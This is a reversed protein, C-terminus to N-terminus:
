PINFDFKNPGKKTVEKVIESKKNYQPPIREKGPKTGAYPSDPSANGAGSRGDGAYIAVRYRGPSLGKPKPIRYQGKVILAGEGTPQGDLPDFNIIGDEVPQGKLLVQGTVEQRNQADGCGSSPCVALLVPLLGFCLTKRRM